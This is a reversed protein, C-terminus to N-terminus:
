EITNMWCLLFTTLVCLLEIAYLTSLFFIHSFVGSFLEKLFCKMLVELGPGVYVRKYIVHLSHSICRLFCQTVM